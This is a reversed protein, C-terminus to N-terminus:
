IEKQTIKVRGQRPGPVNLAWEVADILAEGDVPKRFFSFAGASRAASRGNANAEASLLIVPIDCGLERLRRPLDIGAGGPMRLAAVVCGQQSGIGADLLDNGSEFERTELGASRLLRGLAGRVSPDEDVLYVMASQEPKAMDPETTFM